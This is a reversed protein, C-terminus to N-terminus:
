HITLGAAEAEGELAEAIQQRSCGAAIFRLHLESACESVDIPVQRAKADTVLREIDIAISLPTSM